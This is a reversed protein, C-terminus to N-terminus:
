KVLTKDKADMKVTLSNVSDNTKYTVVWYLFDNPATRLLNADVTTVDNAKMFDSGGNKDAFQIADVYNSQWFETKIPLLAGQYDTKPVLARLSNGSSQSVSITFHHNADDTSDFVYIENSSDLVLNKDFSMFLGSFQANSKWLSWTALRDKAESFRKKSQAAVVNSDATLISDGVTTTSTTETGSPTTSTTQNPPTTSTTNPASKGKLLVYGGGVIVALLLIIGFVILVTRGM